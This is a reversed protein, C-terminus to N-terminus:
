TRIRLYRYISSSNNLTLLAQAARVRVALAPDELLAYLVDIHEVQWSEALAYTALQRISPDKHRTFQPLSSRAEPHDLMALARITYFKEFDSNANGLNLLLQSTDQEASGIFPIIDSAAVRIETDTDALASRVDKLKKEKESIHLLASAYLQLVPDQSTRIANHIISTDAVAAIRFMGKLAELKAKEDEALIIDQLLVIAEKRGGRILAKGIGARYVPESETKIKEELVPVADFGYGADIMAEAAYISPWFEDSHLGERLTQMSKDHVNARILFVPPLEKTTKCGSSLGLSTALFVIFLRFPM